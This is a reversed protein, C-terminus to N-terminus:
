RRWHQCCHGYREATLFGEVQPICSHHASESGLGVTRGALWLYGCGVKTKGMDGGPVAPKSGFASALCTGSSALASPLWSVAKESVGDGPRGKRFAYKSCLVDKRGPCRRAMDSEVICSDLMACSPSVPAKLTIMDFGCSSSLDLVASSISMCPCPYRCIDNGDHFNPVGRKLVRPVGKM